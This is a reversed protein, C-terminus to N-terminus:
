TYFGSLKQSCQRADQTWCVRASLSSCSARLLDGWVTSQHGDTWLSVSFSPGARTFPLGTFPRPAMFFPQSPATLGPLPLVETPVESINEINSPKDWPFSSWRALTHTYVESWHFFSWQSSTPSAMPHTPISARSDFRGAEFGVKWAETTKETFHSRFITSIKM